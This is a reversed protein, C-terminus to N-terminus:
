KEWLELLFKRRHDLRRSVSSEQQVECTRHTRSEEQSRCHDTTRCNDPTRCHDSTRCRDSPRCDENTRVERSCAQEEERAIAKRQRGEFGSAVPALFAPYTVFQLDVVELIMPMSHTPSRMIVKQPQQPIRSHIRYRM